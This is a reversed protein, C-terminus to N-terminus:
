MDHFVDPSTAPTTASEVAAIRHSTPPGGMDHFVDPSVVISAAVLVGMATLRVITGIATGKTQM